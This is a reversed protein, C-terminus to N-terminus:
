RREMYGNKSSDNDDQGKNGFLLGRLGGHKKSETKETTQPQTPTTQPPQATQAAQTKNEVPLGLQEKSIDEFQSNLYSIKSRVYNYITAEQQYVSLKSFQEKTINQVPANDLTLNEVQKITLSPGIKALNKFLNATSENLIKCMNPDKIYNQAKILDSTINIIIGDFHLAVQNYKQEQPNRSTLKEKLMDLNPALLYGMEFLNGFKGDLSYTDIYAQATKLPVKGNEIFRLISGFDMPIFAKELRQTPKSIIGPDNNKPMFHATNVTLFSLPWMSQAIENIAMFPPESYLGSSIVYYINVKTFQKDELKKQEM